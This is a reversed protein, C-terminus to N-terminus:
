RSKKDYDFSKCQDEEADCRQMCDNVNSDNLVINNFGYLAVGEEHTYSCDPLAAVLVYLLKWLYPGKISHIIMDHFSAGNHYM